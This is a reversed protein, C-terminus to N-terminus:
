LLQGGQRLLLVNEQEDILCIPIHHKAFLKGKRCGAGPPDDTDRREGFGISERTQPGAPDYGFVSLDHLAEQSGFLLDMDASGRQVFFDGEAIQLLFIPIEGADTFLNVPFEPHYFVPYLLLAVKFPYLRRTSTDAKGTQGMGLLSIDVPEVPDQQFIVAGIDTRAVPEFHGAM